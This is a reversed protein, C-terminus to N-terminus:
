PADPPEVIVTDPTLPNEPVTFRAAETEEPPAITDIFGGLTMKDVVIVDAVEVSV